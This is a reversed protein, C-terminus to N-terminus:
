LLTSIKSFWFCLVPPSDRQVASTLFLAPCGMRTRVGTNKLPFIMLVFKSFSPSLRIKPNNIYFNNNESNELFWRSAGFIREFCYPFKLILFDNNNIIKQFWNKKKVLFLEICFNEFFRRWFHDSFPSGSFREIKALEFFFM